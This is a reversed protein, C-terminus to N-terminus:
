LFNILYIIYKNIGYFGITCRCTIYAGNILLCQGGNQCIQYNTSCLYIERNLTTITTAITTVPTVRTSSATTKLPTPTFRNEFEWNKGIELLNEAWIPDGTNKMIM